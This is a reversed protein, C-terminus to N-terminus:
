ESIGNADFMAELLEDLINQNNEVLSQMHVKLILVYANKANKLDESSLKHGKDRLQKYFCRVCANGGFVIYSTHLEKYLDIITMGFREFQFVLM